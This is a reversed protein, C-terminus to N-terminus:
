LVDEAEKQNLTGARVGEQALRKFHKQATAETVGALRAAEEPSKGKLYADLVIDKRLGARNRRGRECGAAKLKAFHRRVTREDVRALRAANAVIEGDEFAKAIIQATTSRTGSPGLPVGIELGTQGAVLERCIKQAAELGVAVALWHDTGVKGPFYARTGGVAAAVALAADEGAIQAIEFLVGPLYQADDELAM